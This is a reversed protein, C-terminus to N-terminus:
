LYKGNSMFKKIKLNGIFKKKQLLRKLDGDTFVGLLKKSLPDIICTIGLRKHTMELLAQALTQNPFVWPIAKGLHMVDQIRTLLRKGLHGGPHARAFDESTFGAGRLMSRSAAQNPGDVLHKSYKRNKM